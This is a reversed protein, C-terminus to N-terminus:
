KFHVIRLNDLFINGPKGRGTEQNLSNARFFLKFRAGAPISRIQDNVHVYITNWELGSNFFIGTEIVNIQQGLAYYFGVTFPIDNKYTVEVYIDNNGSQPLPIYDTAVYEFDYESETFAIRGSAIGEFAEISSKEIRNTNAGIRLPELILSANEFGEEFPFSLISDRSFYSFSPSIYLTDLPEIKSVFYNQPKWFPYPNRTSSLGSEFIGGRLLISDVGNELLLPVVVPTRFAALQNSGYDLWVDKIGLKSRLNNSANIVVEPNDISLYIPLPEDATQSCAVLFGALCIFFPFFCIRYRRMM